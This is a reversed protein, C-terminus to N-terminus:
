RQSTSKKGKLYSAILPNFNIPSKWFIFLLLVRSRQNKPLYTRLPLLVRRRKGKPLYTCKEPYCLIPSWRRLPVNVDHQPKLRFIVNMQSILHVRVAGLTFISIKGELPINYSKRIKKNQQMWLELHNPTALKSKWNNMKGMDNFNLSLIIKCWTIM